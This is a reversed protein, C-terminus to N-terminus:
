GGLLLAMLVNSGLNGLSGWLDTGQSKEAVSGGTASDSASSLGLSQLLTQIAANSATMDSTDIGEQTLLFKFFEDLSQQRTDAVDGYITSGATLMPTIVDQLGQMQTQARLAQQSIREQRRDYDAISSSSLGRLALSQELGGLSDAASQDLGALIDELYPVTSKGMLMDLISQYLGEQGMIQPGLVDKPPDWVTDGPDPPAAHGTDDGVVQGTSNDIVINGDPTAIVTQNTDGGFVENNTQSVGYQNRNITAPDVMYQTADPPQYNNAQQVGWSAASQQTQEPTYSVPQPAAAAGWRAGPQYQPMWTSFFNRSGMTWDAPNSFLTGPDLDGNQIAIRQDWTLDKLGPIAGGEQTIGLGAAFDGWNGAGGLNGYLTGLNGYDFGKQSLPAFFQSGAQDWNVQNGGSKFASAANFVDQEKGPQWSGLTDLFDFLGSM